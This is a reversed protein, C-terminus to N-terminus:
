IFIPRPTSRPRPQGHGLLFSQYGLASLRSSASMSSLSCQRDSSTKVEVIIRGVDKLSLGGPPGGQSAKACSWGSERIMIDNYLRSGYRSERRPVSLRTGLVEVRPTYFFHPTEVEVPPPTPFNRMFPVDVMVTQEEEFPFSLAYPTKRASDATGRTVHSLYMASIEAVMREDPERFLDEV